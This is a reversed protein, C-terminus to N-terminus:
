VAADPVSEPAAVDTHRREAEWISTSVLLGGVLAILATLAVPGHIWAPDLRSAVEATESNQVRALTLLDCGNWFALVVLAWRRLDASDSWVRTPLSWCAMLPVGVLFPLAYRGQWNGGWTSLTAAVLAAPVVLGLVCAVVIAVRDRALSSRWGLWLTGILVALFLPYVVLPAPDNRYPAAAIAQLTWLPFEVAQALNPSSSGAESGTWGLSGGALGSLLTWAVGGVGAVLVVLTGGGYLLPRRRARAAVAPVGVKVLVCVAIMLLWLPGLTRVSVLVV